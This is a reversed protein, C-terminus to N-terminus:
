DVNIMWNPIMREELSDKHDSKETFFTKVPNKKDIGFDDLLTIVGTDHRYASMWKAVGKFFNNIDSMRTKLEENRDGCSLSDRVHNYRTKLGHLHNLWAQLQQRQQDPTKEPYRHAVRQTIFLRIATEFEGIESWRKYVLREKNTAIILPSRNTRASAKDLFKIKYYYVNNNNMIGTKDKPHIAVGLCEITIDDLGGVYGSKRNNRIRKSVRKFSKRNLRRNSRKNSRKVRRKSLRRSLKNGRKSRKNSRYSSFGRSRMTRGM